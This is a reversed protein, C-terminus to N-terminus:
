AKDCQYGCSCVFVVMYQSVREGMHCVCELFGLENMERIRSLNHCILSFLKFERDLSRMLSLVVFNAYICVCERHRVLRDFGGCVGVCMYCGSKLVFSFISEDADGLCVCM